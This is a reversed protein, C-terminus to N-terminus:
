RTKSGSQVFTHYYSFCRASICYRMTLFCWVCHTLIFYKRLRVSLCVSLCAPMTLEISWLYKSQGSHRAHIHQARLSAESLSTSYDELGVFWPRKAPFPLELGWPHMYIIAWGLVHWELVHTPLLLLDGQCMCISRFGRTSTPSLSCPSCLDQQLLLAVSAAITNSYILPTRVPFHHQLDPWRVM